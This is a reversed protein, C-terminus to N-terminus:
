VAFLGDRVLVCALFILAMVGLGTVSREDPRSFPTRAPPHCKTARDWSPTSIATKLRRPRLPSAMVRRRHDHRARRRRQPDSTEAVPVSSTNTPMSSRSCCAIWPTAPSSTPKAALSPSPSTPGSPRTPRWSGSTTATRSACNYHTMTATVRPAHPLQDIHVNRRM